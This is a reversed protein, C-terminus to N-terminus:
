EAAQFSDSGVVYDFCKESNGWMHTFAGHFIEIMDRLSPDEPEGLIRRYRDGGWDYDDGKQNWRCFSLYTTVRKGRSILSFGHITPLEAYSRIAITLQRCQERYYQDLKRLSKIVHKVAPKVRETM